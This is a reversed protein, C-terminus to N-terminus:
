IQNTGINVNKYQKEKKKSKLFRGTKRKGYMREMYIFLGTSVQNQTFQFFFFFTNQRPVAYQINLDMCLTGFMDHSNQIENQFKPM